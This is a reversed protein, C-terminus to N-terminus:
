TRRGSSARPARLFFSSGSFRTRRTARSSCDCLHRPSLAGGGSTDRARRARNNNNNNNNNLNNTNILLTSPHLLGRGLLLPQCVATKCLLFPVCSHLSLAKDCVKDAFELGTADILDDAAREKRACLLVPVAVLLLLLVDGAERPSWEPPPPSTPPAAKPTPPPSRETAQEVADGKSSAKGGAKPSWAPSKGGTAKCPQKEVAAPADGDTGAVAAAEPDVDVGFFASGRAPAAGPAAETTPEPPPAKPAYGRKLWIALCASGVADMLALDGWLLGAVPALTGCALPDRGTPDVGPLGGRDDGDALAAAVAAAGRRGDGGYESAAAHWEAHGSFAAAALGLTHHPLTVGMFRGASAAGATHRACAASIQCAELFAALVGPNGDPPPSPPLGTSWAAAAAAATTATTAGGGDPSAHATLGWAAAASKWKEAHKVLSLKLAALSSGHVEGDGGHLDKVSKKATLGSVDKKSFAGLRLAHSVSSNQSQPGQKSIGHHGDFSDYHASAAAAKGRLPSKTVADDAGAHHM